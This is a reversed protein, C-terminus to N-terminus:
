HTLSVLGECVLDEGEDDEEEQDEDSDPGDVSSPGAEPEASPQLQVAPGTPAKARALMEARLSQKQQQSVGSPNLGLDYSLHGGFYPVVRHVVRHMVEGQMERLLELM